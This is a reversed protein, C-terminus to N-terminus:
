LFTMGLRNVLLLFTLDTNALPLHDYLYIEFVFPM